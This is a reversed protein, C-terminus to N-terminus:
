LHNEAGISHILQYVNHEVKALDQMNPRGRIDGLQGKTSYDVNGHFEGVVYWESVLDFGLHEFFQGMYKCAPIAERLGTHPGSYTCFVAARKGPIKPACLKVDGREEHYKMKDKIFHLVQDPPLWGYSPAGLFVLDHEYLEVEKAEGVKMITSVVKQRKLTHHITKAVKETNGTGSWYIILSRLLHDVSREEQM